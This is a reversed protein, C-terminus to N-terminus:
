SRPATQAREVAPRMLKEAVYVGYPTRVEKLFPDTADDDYSIAYLGAILSPGGYGGLFGSAAWFGRDSDTFRMEFRTELEDESMPSQTVPDFVTLKTKVDGTYVYGNWVHAFVIFGPFTIPLNKISGSYEARADIQVVLDPVFGPEQRDWGWDTRVQAVSPHARLAEVAAVFLAKDSADGVYPLIAVNQRPAHTPTVDFDRINKIRMDHTCAALLGVCSALLLVLSRRGLTQFSTRTTQHSTM